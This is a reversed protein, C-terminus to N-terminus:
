EHTTDGRDTHDAPWVTMSHMVMQPAYQILEIFGGNRLADLQEPTPRWYDCLMPYGEPSRGTLSEVTGCDEDSVGRPPGIHLARFTPRAQAAADPIPIPTMNM